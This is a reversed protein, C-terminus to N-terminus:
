YTAKSLKSSILRSIINLIFVIVLIVIGIACAMEINGFEKTEVYARVTLTTGTQFVSLNGTVPNIPLKAFTGLTFLLAASEGVIRGVSLIVGVLIGPISSPLIVKWLTQFRNAGLGYSAEKYFTPVTKLAEETTRIVFPLLLISLTLAGSLQSTQYGFIKMNPIHIGLLNFNGFTMGRVFLLMGFIGYIISPIGTLTEISFRILNVIKGPKAYEVLYIAALIGLPTAIALTLIIMMLTSIILPFIGGGPNIIKLEITDSQDILDIMEGATKEDPYYTEGNVNLNEILYGSNVVLKDGTGLKGKMLPSDEDIYTIKYYSKNKSNKYDEITFGFNNSFLGDNNSFQKAHYTVYNTSKEYDNKLFSFNIKGMGNVFIFGIIWLLVFLCIVAALYIILYFISDKRNGTNSKLKNFLQFM